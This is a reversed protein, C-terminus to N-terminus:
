PQSLSEPLQEIPGTHDAPKVSTHLASCTTSAPSTDGSPPWLRRIATGMAHMLSIRWPAISPGKTQCALRDLHAFSGLRLNGVDDDHGVVVGATPQGEAGLPDHEPVFADVVGRRELLLDPRVPRLETGLPYRPDGLPLRKDQDVVAVGDVAAVVARRALNRVVQLILLVDGVVD